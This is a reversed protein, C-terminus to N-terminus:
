IADNTQTLYESEYFTCVFAFRINYKLSISVKYYLFFTLSFVCTTYIHKVSNIVCLSSFILTMCEYRLNLVLGRYYFCFSHLISDFREDTHLNCVYKGYKRFTNYLLLCEKFDM